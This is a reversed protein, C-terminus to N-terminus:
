NIKMTMIIANDTNNYYKKRIIDVITQVNFDITSVINNGNEAPKKVQEM